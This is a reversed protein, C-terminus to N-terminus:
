CLLLQELNNYENIVKNIMSTINDFKNLVDERGSINIKIKNGIDQYSIIMYQYIEKLEKMEKYVKNVKLKEFSITNSFMISHNDIWYSGTKSLENYMNLNNINYEELLKNLNSLETKLHGINIEM